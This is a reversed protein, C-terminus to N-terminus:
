FSGKIDLDELKNKLKIKIEDINNLKLFKYFNSVIYEQHM